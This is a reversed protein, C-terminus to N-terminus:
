DHRSAHLSGTVLGRQQNLHHVVSDILPAFARAAFIPRAARRQNPPPTGDQKPGMRQRYLRLRDIRELRLIQLLSSVRYIQSTVFLGVWSSTEIVDSLMVSRKPFMSGTTIGRELKRM